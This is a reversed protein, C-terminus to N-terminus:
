FTCLGTAEMFRYMIKKSLSSDKYLDYGVSFHKEPTNGWILQFHQRAKLFVSASSAGKVLVDTELNLNDLNRRTFNTSGLILRTTQDHYRIFLMKSHCQEGHTDYWRVPIGEKFLEHAVPRNPIGNKQRGFADKNPDLLIRLSAGRQYAKKLANIIQRDSLYFMVLDIEDGATAKNIAQLVAEKIRKETIISITTDSPRAVPKIVADPLRAGSFSLVAKETEFLDAVAPGSFRIASNTHASSGDHPNASTVLALFEDGNDAIITKRHNAKFNLLKLFSGLSISGKGFPNPLFDGPGNTFPRALIRWFPSYFINSDRLVDLDTEVVQIDAARLRAHHSSPLAGYVSNIPDTIVIIEIEPFLNKQNILASTLEETLPRESRTSNGKFDNFLFMDLLILKRAGKIMTFISDFIEQDVVREKRSNIYTIDALFDIDGAPHDNGRFNTGHPLPKNINLLSMTLLFFGIALIFFGTVQSLAFCQKSFGNKCVKMIDVFTVRM